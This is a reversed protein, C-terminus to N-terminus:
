KSGLALASEWSTQDVSRGTAMAVALANAQEVADPDWEMGAVMGVANLGISQLIGAREQARTVDHCEARWSAELVVIIEEQSKRQKGGWILDSALVQTLQAETIDGSDVADYLRDAVDHTMNRGRRMLSGFIADAKNWYENEYSKDKLYAVDAKLVKCDEKLV